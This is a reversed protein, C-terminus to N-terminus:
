ECLIGLKQLILQEQQEFKEDEYISPIYNTVIAEIM